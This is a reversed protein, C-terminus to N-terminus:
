HRKGGVAKPAAAAAAVAVPEPKVVRHSNFSLYANWVLSVVNVALVRLNPPVYRFFWM